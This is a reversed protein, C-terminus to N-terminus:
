GNEDIPLGALDTESFDIRWLSPLGEARFRLLRERLEGEVLVNAHNLDVDVAIAGLALDL